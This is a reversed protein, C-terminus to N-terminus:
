TLLKSMVLLAVVLLASLLSFVVLFAANAVSLLPWWLLVNVLVVGVVVLFM